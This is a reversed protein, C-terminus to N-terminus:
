AAIKDMIKKYKNVLGAQGDSVTTVGPVLNMRFNLDYAKDVNKFYHQSFDVVANFVQYKTGRYNSLNDAGMCDSVFIDRVIEIRENAAAHLSDDGSSPMFPFLEDLVTDVYDRSVKETAMKDAKMELHKIASDAGNILNRAIEANSFSDSTVPIRVKADAASLAATLTNQCVVRIPTNLITVKGDAKLHENLVVFYHDVADDLVTFANKIKFCGFIREGIGLSAATEIEVEKGLLDSFANFADKNQVLCPVRKNVVGLIRNDLERYVAYYHPIDPFLTSSMKDVNVTWDLEAATIIEEVTKPPEQFQHGLNHWPAEGVYMMTEINASM